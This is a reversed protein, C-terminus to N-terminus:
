LRHGGKQQSIVTQSMRLIEQRTLEFVFDEPFRDENRKVAQNLARTEVDYIKALDTDLIVRTDRISRILPTINCAPVIQTQHNM